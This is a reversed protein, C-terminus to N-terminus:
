HCFIVFRKRSIINLQSILLGISFYYGKQLTTGSFKIKLDITHFQAPHLQHSKKTKKVITLLFNCSNSHFAFSIEINHV